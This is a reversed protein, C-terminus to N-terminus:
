PIGNTYSDYTHCRYSDYLVGRRKPNGRKVEVVIMSSELCGVGWLRCGVAEILPIRPLFASFSCINDNDSDNDSNTFIDIPGASDPVPVYVYM